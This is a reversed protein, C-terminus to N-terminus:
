FRVRVALTGQHEVRDTDLLADYDLLVQLAEGIDASWGLGLIVVDRPIEAGRVALAGGTSAGILRARLVRERDGYERQWFARVEPVLLGDGDLDIEGFLRGGFRATTSELDEPDVDLNLSAAGTERYREETLQLWDIGVIPQIGFSGISFITV